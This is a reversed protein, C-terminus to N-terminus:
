RSGDRVVACHVGESARRPKHYTDRQIPLVQPRVCAVLRSSPAHASCRLFATSMFGRVVFGGGVGDWGGGNGCSFSISGTAYSIPWASVASCRARRSFAFSSVRWVSNATRRAVLRSTFRSCFSRSFSFSRYFRGFTEGDLREPPRKGGHTRREGNIGRLPQSVLSIYEEHDAQRM